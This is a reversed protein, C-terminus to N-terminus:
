INQTQLSYKNTNSTCKSALWIDFIFDEAFYSNQCLLWLKLQINKEHWRRTEFHIWMRYNGSHWPVGQEFCARFGFGCGSLKYVLVWRVSQATNHTSIQVTCKVTKATIFSQKWKINQEINNILLLTQLASVNKPTKVLKRSLILRLRILYILCFKHFRWRQIECIRIPRTVFNWSLCIIKIKQVM